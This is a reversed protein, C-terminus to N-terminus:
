VDGSGSEEGSPRDLVPSFYVRRVPDSRRRWNFWYTALAAVMGVASLVMEHGTHHQIGYGFLSGFAFMVVGHALAGLFEARRQRRVSVNIKEIEQRYRLYVESPDEEASTM